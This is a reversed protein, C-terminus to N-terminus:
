PDDEMGLGLYGTGQRFRWRNGSVGALAVPLDLFRLSSHAGALLSRKEPRERDVPPERTRFDRPM